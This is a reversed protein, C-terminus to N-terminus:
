KVAYDQKHTSMMKKCIEYKDLVFMKTRVVNKFLKYKTVKMVVVIVNKQM